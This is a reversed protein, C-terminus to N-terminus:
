GTAAGTDHCICVEDAPIYAWTQEAKRGGDKKKREDGGKNVMSSKGLITRGIYSKCYNMHHPMRPEVQIFCSVSM